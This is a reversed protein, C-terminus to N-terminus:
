RKGAIMRDLSAAGAGRAMVALCLALALLHFEFGEKGAPLAGSWIMFFGVKSHVLWIATAMVCFIGFAAIRTLFGFFLGIPGLFEAVFVLAAFFGPIGAKQTFFAYTGALGYGGFWGLVKQAGHPFFVVALTIRVLMDVVSDSTKLLGKIM